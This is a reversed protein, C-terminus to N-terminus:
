RKLWGRHKLCLRVTYDVSVEFKHDKQMLRMMFEQCKLFAIDSWAVNPLKSRSPVPSATTVCVSVFGTEQLKCDLFPSLGKQSVDLNSHVSVLWPSHADWLMDVLSCDSHVNIFIPLLSRVRWIRTELPWLFSSFIITMCFTQFASARILQFCYGKSLKWLWSLNLPGM